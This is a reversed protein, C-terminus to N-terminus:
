NTAIEHKGNYIYQVKKNLKELLSLQQNAKQIQEPQQINDDNSPTEQDNMISQISDIESQLTEKEVKYEALRKEITDLENKMQSLGQEIQEKTNNPKLKNKMRQAQIEAQRTQFNSIKSQLQKHKGELLIIANNISFIQSNIQAIMSQAILITLKDINDESEESKSAISTM